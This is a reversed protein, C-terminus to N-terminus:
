GKWQRGIPCWTRLKARAACTRIWRGVRSKTSDLISFSFQPKM